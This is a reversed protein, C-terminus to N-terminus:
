LVPRWKFGPSTPEFPFPPAAFHSLKGAQLYALKIANAVVSGRAAIPNRLSLHCVSESPLRQRSGKLHSNAAAAATTEKVAATIAAGAIAGAIAAAASFSSLLSSGCATITTTACIINETRGSRKPM